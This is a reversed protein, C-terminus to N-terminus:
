NTKNSAKLLSVSIIVVVLTIVIAYIFKILVGSNSLPFLIEILAKIADNWALAAVLSLAATIYGATQNKIQERLEEKTMFPNYCLHQPDPVRVGIGDELPIHGVM